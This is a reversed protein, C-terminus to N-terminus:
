VLRRRPSLFFADRPNRWQLIAAPDAALPASWAFRARPGPKSGRRQLVARPHPFGFWGLTSHQCGQPAADPDGGTLGRPFGECGGRTAALEQAETRAFASGRSRAPSDRGGRDGRGEVSSAASRCGRRGPGTIVENKAYLMDGAERDPSATSATPGAASACSSATPSRERAGCGRRGGRDSSCTRGHGASFAARITM